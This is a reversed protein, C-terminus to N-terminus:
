FRHLLYVQMFSGTWLESFIDIDDNATDDGIFKEHSFSCHVGACCWCCGPLNILAFNFQAKLNLPIEICTSAYYFKTSCFLIVDIRDKKKRKKM